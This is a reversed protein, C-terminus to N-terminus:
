QYPSLKRRTTIYKNCTHDTVGVQISLVHLLIIHNATDFATSWDLLELASVLGDETACCIDNHVIVIATDTSHSQRYASRHATTVPTLMLHSQCCSEQSVDTREDKREDTQVKTRGDTRGDTQLVTRGKTWGAMRLNVPGDTRGVM